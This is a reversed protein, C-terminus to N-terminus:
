CNCPADNIGTAAYGTWDRSRETRSIWPLVWLTPVCLGVQAVLLWARGSVISPSERGPRLAGHRGSECATRDRRRHDPRPCSSVPAETDARPRGPRRTTDKRLKTRFSLPAALRRPIARSTT